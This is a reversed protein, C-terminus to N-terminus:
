ETLENNDDNKSSILNKYIKYGVWADTAAYIKQEKTLRNNEWNSLQQSKSIRFHLIIGSLKKLSFNEIGFEKVFTQLEVFGGAEFKSLKQLGKIDDRIAVGAKIIDPNKLVRVLKKPLGLKKLKFLYAKKETSLQLIAVSNNRGKKFTPRTETDFGLINHKELEAVAKNFTRYDNVEIIEGEFAKLPLNNLEERSISKKYSM